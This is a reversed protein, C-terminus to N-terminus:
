ECKELQKTLTSYHERTDAYQRVWLQMTEVWEKYCQTPVEIAAMIAAVDHTQQLHMLYVFMKRAYPLPRKRSSGQLDAVSVGYEKAVLELVKGTSVPLQLTRTM